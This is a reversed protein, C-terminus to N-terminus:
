DADSINESSLMDTELKRWVWKVSPHNSSKLIQGRSSPCFQGQGWQLQTLSSVKATCKICKLNGSNLQSCDTPQQSKEGASTVLQTVGAQRRLYLKWKTSNIFSTACEQETYRIEMEATSLGQLVTETNEIFERSKNTGIGSKFSEM